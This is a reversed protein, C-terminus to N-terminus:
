ENNSIVSKMICFITYLSYKPAIIFSIRVRNFISILKSKFDLNNNNDHYIYVNDIIKIAVNNKLANLSWHVDEYYMFYFEPIYGIRDVISSKFFISAGPVYNIKDNLSNQHKTSFNKLNVNGGCSETKKSTYNIITCGYLADEEKVNSVLFSISNPMIIVDNNIIWIYDCNYNSRIYKIGFNNGKAYGGNNNTSILTINNKGKIFNAINKYSNNTSCNDVVLINLLPYDSKLVSKLCRVTDKHKNYNLILVVVNKNYSLNM